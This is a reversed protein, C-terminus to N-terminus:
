RRLRRNIGEILQSVEIWVAYGLKRYNCLRTVVPPKIESQLRAQNKVEALIPLIGKRSVSFSLRARVTSANTSAM